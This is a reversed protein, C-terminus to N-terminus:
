EEALPGPEPVALLVGTRPTCCKQVPNMPCPASAWLGEFECWYWTRRTALVSVMPKSDVACVVTPLLPLRVGNFSRHEPCYSAQFIKPGPRTVAALSEERPSNPIPERTWRHENRSWYWSQSQVEMELPYKGCATCNGRLDTAGHGFLYTWCEPCFLSTFRSQSADASAAPAPLLLLGLFTLRLLKMM